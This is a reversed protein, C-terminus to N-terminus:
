TWYLLTYQEFSHQIKDLRLIILSSKQAIWFYFDLMCFIQELQRTKLNVLKSSEYVLKKSTDFHVQPKTNLRISLQQLNNSDLTGLNEAAVQGIAM